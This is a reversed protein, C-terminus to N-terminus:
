RWLGQKVMAARVVYGQVSNDLLALGALANTPTVLGLEWLQGFVLAAMLQYGAANPHQDKLFIQPCDGTPCVSGFQAALDVVRLDTHSLVGNASGYLSQHSPYTLLVFKAGASSADAAMARLNQQLETGWGLLLAPDMRDTGALDFAAGDVRVIGRRSDPRGYDLEVKVEGQHLGTALMYLLRFVRSHEWLRHTVSRNGAGSADTAVPVSNIDNSGVLVLVLDPRLTELLGPFSRRLKSSNLGPFGLNLVEVPDDPAATNWIRELHYPFTQDRQMWLGYVNSDGLCIVRRRNSHWAATEPHETAAIYVAGFQLLLEIVAL